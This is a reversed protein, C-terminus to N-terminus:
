IVIILFFYAGCSQNIVEKGFLQLGLRRCAVSGEAFSWQKNCVTGWANNVCVEIRGQYPDSGGVLRIDGHECDAYM